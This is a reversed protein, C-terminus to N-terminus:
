RVWRTQMCSFNAIKAGMSPKFLICPIRLLLCTQLHTLEQKYWLHMFNLGQHESPGFVVARPMSRSFGARPLVAQLLPSMIEKEWEDYTLQTATLPYSLAVGIREQLSKWVDNRDMPGSNLKAVFDKVADKLKAVQGKANGDVALGVGLTVESENPNKCTLEEYATGATNRVSISAPMDATDWYIWDTGDWQFDVLYWFSKSPVLAGGTARILGEWEDLHRQASEAIEEGRQHTTPATFLLDADDVFLFGCLAISMWSIASVFTAVYGQKHMVELILCSIVAWIAPGAGNGQGIGHMPMNIGKINGGGYTKSSVGYATRVHHVAQQLTEFM